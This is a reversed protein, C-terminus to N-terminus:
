VTNHHSDNSYITSKKEVVSLLSHLSELSGSGEHWPLDSISMGILHCIRRVATDIIWLTMNELKADISERVCQGEFLLRCYKHRFYSRAVSDSEPNLISLISILTQHLIGIGYVIKRNGDEYKEERFNMVHTHFSILLVVIKKDLAAIEADTSEECATHM